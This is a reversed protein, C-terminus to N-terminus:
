PTAWGRPEVPCDAACIAMGPCLQCRTPAEVRERYQRFATHQWIDQWADVLLNGASQRPGRPPIVAGDIEVRVAVDGACRPGARVQTQLPVAPDRAVPPQWIYAVQAEDAEEEVMAAVQRMAQAQLADPLHEDTTAIAFFSVNPVQLALLAQLTSELGNVTAPLLPIQGVDAVELSQTRQFLLVAAEHDGAGLLTDHADADASAFFASVHDLGAALLDDLMSGAMLDTARASVGCILGLDEAREVAALLAAPDPDAPVEITVHPIGVEWLRDLLPRLQAPPALPITAELPALLASEYPSVSADELNFVPYQDGPSLLEAVRLKVLALDHELRAQTVDHFRAALDALVDREAVGDMLSKAIVVGVPTLRLAASANALLIGSGDPEVRLHLRDVAGNREQVVHYLGPSIPEPPEPRQITFLRQMLTPNM